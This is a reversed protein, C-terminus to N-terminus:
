FTEAYGEVILVTVNDPAGAALTDQILGEVATGVHSNEMWGQIQAESLTRTLGDSCLLFRDGAFVTDRVMDLGLAPRVGIAKTVANSLNRGDHGDSNSASHDRTLQELRGGRWRYVRSDGVWLIACQMGRVLLVVVTSASRDAM